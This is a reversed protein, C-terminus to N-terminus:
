SLQGCSLAGQEGGPLNRLLRQASDWDRTVKLLRYRLAIRSRSEGAATEVGSSSSHVGVHQFMSPAWLYRRSRLAATHMGHPIM